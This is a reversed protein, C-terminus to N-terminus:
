FVMKLGFQIQRSVNAQSGVTGFSGAGFNAAPPAFVPTNFLNFTEARFQLKTSGDQTLSFNKFLSLDFEAIGDSRVNPLLRPASGFTYAAPQSFVSTDFWRALREQTPRGGPLEPNGNVNPRQTASFAGSNNSSNSILFTRGSQFTTIGNVQWGGLVADAPRGWGSGLAKGRGFPLEVVYSVVLRQPIDYLSVARDARRNYFNQFLGSGGQSDTLHSSDDILKAATYALLVQVGRSFRRHLQLQFSHYISSAANPRHNTLGTFQPFPRLLQGVTTTRAALPGTTILGFFPNPASQLLQNGLAMAEPPLQNEEWGVGATLRTGKNAAYSMEVAMNGPLARQVTFNWQQLYGVRAHRDYASSSSGGSLNEGYATLLGQSSGPPINLGEPYPNNLRNLPTIGDLSSVWTTLTSFGLYGATGSSARGVYPEYFVGYGGRVVTDRNLTYAFGFRPGFNNKDLLFQRRGHGDTNVFRLGGRLGPLGVDNAIPSPVTFDFWSLHDYRDKRGTELDYRLGLNLVLRGTVRYEDQLYVAFYNSSTFVRPPILVNGTGTGLLLSAISNGSTPGSRTPDPGQTFNPGFVFTGNDNNGNPGAAQTVRFDAGVKLTHASKIKTVSGAWQYSNGHQDTSGSTGLAGYGSVNFRPFTPAPAALQRVFNGQFGLVSRLDFGEGSAPEQFVRFRSFGFRFEGLLSPSMIRTYSFAGNRGPNIRSIRDGIPGAINQYHDAGKSDLNKRSLRLFMKDKSSPNLDVRVHVQDLRETSPASSTFNDAGTCSDGTGNPLPYFSVVKTATPDFLHPPVTNNPFQMRVFGTGQARTSGPDFINVPDCRGSVRRFTRSFDGTREAPTPFTSTSTQQAAQRLGEYSLFFFVRDRGDFGPLLVPGGITAGFQHRRFSGLPIGGRNSFFNNADLASNRLYEFASGHFENTGSKFIMNIVGGGTRGFEAALNNTQVKFEQVADVPPSVPVVNINQAASTVSSVGDTLFESTQGRGGNILINSSTNFENGEFAPSLLVGPALASLQLVSRGNLPVNSLQRNGIVSGLSSREREVLPAEATVSVQETM